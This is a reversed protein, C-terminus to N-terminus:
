EVTNRQTVYNKMTTRQAVNHEVLYWQTESQGVTYKKFFINIKAIYIQALYIFWKFNFQILCPFVPAYYAILKLNELNLSLGMSFGM